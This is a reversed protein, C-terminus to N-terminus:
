KIGLKDKIKEQDKEIEEFRRNTEFKEQQIKKWYLIRHEDCCFRQWFVKKEFTVGCHKCKITDITM